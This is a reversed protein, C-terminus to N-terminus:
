FSSVGMQLRGNHTFCGFFINTYDIRPRAIFMARKTKLNEGLILPSQSGLVNSLTVQPVMINLLPRVILGLLFDPCTSTLIHALLVGFYELNLAKIENM